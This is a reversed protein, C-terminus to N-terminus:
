MMPKVAEFELKEAAMQEISCSVVLQYLCDVRVKRGMMPGTSILIMSASRLGAKAVARAVTKGAFLLNITKPVNLLVSSFMALCSESPVPEVVKHM